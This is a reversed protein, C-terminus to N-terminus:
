TGSTECTGVATQDGLTSITIIGHNGLGSIDHAITGSCEDLKWRSATKSRNMAWAIQSPTKAYDFIKIDDLGGAWTGNGNKDASIYLSETTALSGTASLSTDQVVLVGDIYLKISTTGDKVATSYHWKGDWKSASRADGGGGCRFRTSKTHLTCKACRTKLM